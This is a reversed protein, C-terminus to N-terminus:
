LKWGTNKFMEVEIPDGLLKGTPEVVISHCSVM